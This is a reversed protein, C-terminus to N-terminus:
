ERSWKFHTALTLHALTLAQSLRNLVVTVTISWDVALIVADLKQRNELPTGDSILITTDTKSENTPNIERHALKNAAIDVPFM